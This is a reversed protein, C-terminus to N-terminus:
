RTEFRNFHFEVLASSDDSGRLYIAWRDARSTERLSEDEELKLQLCREGLTRTQGNFPGGVLQCIMTPQAALITTM